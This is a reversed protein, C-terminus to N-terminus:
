LAGRRNLLTLIVAALVLLAALSFLGFNVWGLVVGVRALRRGVAPSQGADIRRLEGRGIVLGILGIVLGILGPLGLVAGLGLGLVAGLGLGLGLVLGVGSLVVSAKARRSPPADGGVRRFCATCLVDEGLLEVCEGCLFAGCRQCVDVAPVEPHRGCRATPPPRRESAPSPGAAEAM